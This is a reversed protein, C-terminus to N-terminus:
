PVLLILILAEPEWSERTKDFGEWRILFETLNRRGKQTKRHDLTRYVSFVVDGNLLVRPPPLQLRQDKKMPKLLSVHFVPHLKLEVPLALCYAVKGVKEVVKYPGMWRHM